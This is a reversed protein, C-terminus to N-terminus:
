QLVNWKAQIDRTMARNNDKIMLLMQDKAMMSITTDVMSSLQDQTMDLMMKDIAIIMQEKTDLSIQPTYQHVLYNRTLAKMQDISMVMMMKDIPRMYAMLIMQDRFTIKMDDINSPVQQGKSIDSMTKALGMVGSSAQVTGMSVTIILCLLAFRKLLNLM